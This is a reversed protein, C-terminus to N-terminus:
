TTFHIPYTIISFHRGLLYNRFKDISYVIALGELDSIGYNKECNSTNRSCCSILRWEEGQRQMLIGALGIKSADTKLAIPDYHNFHALVPQSTLASKISKFADDQEKEWRFVSNKKLMKTFPQALQAFNPVLRRYYNLLGHVRRIEDISKPRPMETIAKVKTPDARIGSVDILHGLFTVQSTGFVCKSPKLKLNSKILLSFVQELMKVHEPWTRTAICIDDIFTQLQMGKLGAFIGNVLKQFSAPANCLGFPMRKFQYLGEDTRFATLEKARQSLPIQWFGSAMDLQSYFINGSLPEMCDETNPLPYSCKKTM